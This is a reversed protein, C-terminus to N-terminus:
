DAEKVEANDITYLFSEPDSSNLRLTGVVKVLNRNQVATKGPQLQVMVMGSLDPMECFWCGVPHEILLFAVMEPEDDLPQIFGSLMVARGELDRLHRPFNPQFREGVSTDGMLSWPVFNIGDPRIPPLPRSDLRHRLPRKTKPAFSSTHREHANKLADLRTLKSIEEAVARLARRHQRLEPDNMGFETVCGDMIAAATRIDGHANALEALQWLLRGDAPLWLGLQQAIAVADYPLKKKAAAALEGPAYEGKEGTYHIGFLDDLGSANRSQRGQVLKLHHEEVRRLKGPALRVSEQLCVAAQALDNQMQWATGLNAMILFHGPHERQGSRLLALGRDVEGLRLYLAGLDAIEDATLKQRQQKRELDAAAEEYKKRAPSAPTRATPKVSINRLTRQDLLYGPWQSPLDAIVEGSYYLGAWASQSLVLMAILGVFSRFQMDAVVPQLFWAYNVLGIM